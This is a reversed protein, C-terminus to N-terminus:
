SADGNQVFVGDEGDIEKIHVHVADAPRTPINKGVFDAKIPLERHGRDILAALQIAKPRGLDILADLACRITRGTFLVDDVLVITRDDISFDLITERIVPQEAIRTLDDRYLNIDLIGLLLPQDPPEGGQSSLIERIKSVIRRALYEGRTRIGVIAPIASEQNRELIEHAMRTLARDMDQPSLVTKM